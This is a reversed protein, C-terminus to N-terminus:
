KLRFVRLMQDLIARHQATACIRTELRRDSKLAEIVPALKVAEPRTGLVVLIKRKMRRGSEPLRRADSARGEGVHFRRRALPRERNAPQALILRQPDATDEGVDGRC